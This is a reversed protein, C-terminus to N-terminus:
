QSFPIEEFKFWLMRFPCWFHILSHTLETEQQRLVVASAKLFPYFHNTSSFSATNQWPSPKQILDLGDIGLSRPELIVFLLPVLM